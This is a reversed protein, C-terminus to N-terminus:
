ATKSCVTNSQCPYFRVYVHSQERAVPRSKHSWGHLLSQTPNNRLKDVIFHMVSHKAEDIVQILPPINKVVHEVETAFQLIVSFYIFVCLRAYMCMHVLVCVYYILHKSNDQFISVYVSCM